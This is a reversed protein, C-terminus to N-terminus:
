ATVLLRYAIWILPLVETNESMRRWRMLRTNEPPRVAAPWAVGVGDGTHRLEIRHLSGLIALRDPVLDGLRDVYATFSRLGTCGHCGRIVAEALMSSGEPLLVTLSELDPFWHGLRTLLGDDGLAESADVVLTRLAHPRERCCVEPAPNRASAPGMGGRRWRLGVASLNLRPLLNRVFAGGHDCVDLMAITNVPADDLAAMALDMAQPHHAMSAGIVLRLVARGHTRRRLLRGLTRWDAPTQM